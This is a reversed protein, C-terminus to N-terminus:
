ETDNEVYIDTSLSTALVRAKDADEDRNGEAQVVFWPKQPTVLVPPTAYGALAPIADLPAGNGAVVAYGFRVTADSSVNFRLWCNYDPHAPQKWHYKKSNPTAMPYYTSLSGTGPACGNAGCGSCGLYLLTESRYSEEGARIGQVIAIAESMGASAVYKRYGMIALTSLIGIMAVVVLLEVLTYGRRSARPTFRRTMPSTHEARRTGPSDSAIQGRDPSIRASRDRTTGFITVPKPPLSMSHRHPM